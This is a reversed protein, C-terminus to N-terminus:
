LNWVILANKRDSIFCLLSKGKLKKDIEEVTVQDFKRVAKQYDTMSLERILFVGGIIVFGIIFISVIKKNM